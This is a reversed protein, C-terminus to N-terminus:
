GYILEFLRPFFGIVVVILTVPSLFPALSILRSFNWEALRSPKSVEFSEPNEVAISLGFLTVYVVERGGVTSIM